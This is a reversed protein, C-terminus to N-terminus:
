VAMHWRSMGSQVQAFSTGFASPELATLASELLPTHRTFPDTM